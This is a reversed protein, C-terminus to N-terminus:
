SSSSGYERMFEFRLRDALEEVIADMVAQPAPTPGPPSAASETVVATAVRDVGHWVHSDLRSAPAEAVPAEVVGALKVPLSEAAVASSDGTATGERNARLLRALEGSGRTLRTVGPETARREM